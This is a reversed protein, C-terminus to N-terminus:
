CFVFLVIILKIYYFFFFFLFLFSLNNFKLCYKLRGVNLHLIYSQYDYLHTTLEKFENLLKSVYRQEKKLM